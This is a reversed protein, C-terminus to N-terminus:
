PIEETCFPVNYIDKLKYDRIKIIDKIHIIKALIIEILYKTLNCYIRITDDSYEKLCKKCRGLCISSINCNICDDFIIKCDEYKLIPKKGTIDGIIGNEDGIYEDCWYIKGDIDIVQLSSGARCRFSLGDNQHNFLISSIIAQFPVVNLIKGHEFYSLWYDFLRSLNY